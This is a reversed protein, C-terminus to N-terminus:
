GNIFDERTIIKNKEILTIADVYALTYSNALGTNSNEEYLLHAEIGDWYVFTCNVECFKKILLEAKQEADDAKKRTKVVNELAKHLYKM